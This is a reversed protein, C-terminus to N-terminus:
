NDQCFSVEESSRLLMVEEFMRLYDIAMDRVTRGAFTLGEDVSGARVSHEWDFQLHLMQRALSASTKDVSIVRNSSLLEGLGGEGTTVVFCGALLAERALIGFSEPAISPAVLVDIGRLFHVVQDRPIRALRKVLVDGWLELRSAGPPLEDDLVWVECGFGRLSEIAERFIDFGKHRAEGALYAFSPKRSATPGDCTDVALMGNEIFHCEHVGESEAVGAFTESVAVVKAARHLLHITSSLRASRARTPATLSGRRVDQWHTPSNSAAEKSAEASDLFFMHDRFWWGDHLTITFPVGAADIAELTELGFRQFAHVNVLDISEAALLQHVFRTMKSNSLEDDGLPSVVRYVPYGRSRDMMVPFGDRVFADITLVVPEVGHQPHEFYYDALDSCVFTAGGVAQPPFFVNLFLVKM